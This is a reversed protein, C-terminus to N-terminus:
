SLITCIHVQMKAEDWTMGVGQTYLENNVGMGTSVQPQPQLTM